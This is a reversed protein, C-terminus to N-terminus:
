LQVKANAYTLLSQAKLLRGELEAIEESSLESRAPESLQAEITAIVQSCSM